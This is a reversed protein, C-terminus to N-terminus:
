REGPRTTVAQMRAGDKLGCLYKLGCLDSLAALGMSRNLPIRTLRTVSVYEDEASDGLELPASVAIAPSFRRKLVVQWM